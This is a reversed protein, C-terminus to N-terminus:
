GTKPYQPLAQFVHSDISLVFPLPRCWGNMLFLFIYSAKNSPAAVALPSWQYTCKLVQLSLSLSSLNQFWHQETEWTFLRYNQKEVGHGFGSYLVDVPTDSFFSFVDNNSCNVVLLHAVNELCILTNFLFLYSLMNGRIDSCFTFSQLLLKCFELFRSQEKPSLHIEGHQLSLLGAPIMEVPQCSIKCWSSVPGHWLGNILTQCCKQCSFSQQWLESLGDVSMEEPTVWHVSNNLRDDVPQSRSSTPVAPLRM